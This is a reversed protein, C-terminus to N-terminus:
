VTVDTSGPPVFTRTRVAKVVEPTVIVAWAEAVGLGDTRLETYLIDLVRTPVFTKVAVIILVETFVPFGVGDVDVEVFFSITVRCFTSEVLEVITVEDWVDAVGEAVNIEVSTESIGWVTKVVTVGLTSGETVDEM